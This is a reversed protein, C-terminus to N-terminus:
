ASRGQKRRRQVLEQAACRWEPFRFEFGSMLLLGPVVRRSKLILETETRLFIAGVELMWQSAPLGVRAGWAKRLIRMFEENPLPNPSAVNVTREFEEREVLHDLARVFDDEHIWSVFQKGSGPKGGLGFRVLRLLLDFTGGREASMVMASRLAIRRTRPTNAAFFAREWRTAVEISFHWSDPVNAEHGGLEGTMEDMAQDFSHRYITATSANIWLHPPRHLKSIAEGLLETTRIRSELIERRNRANYRCNVSRGALNIVVDADELETTWDDLDSGNWSIVPWPAVAGSRSLVTVQNGKAHLHRAVIRGLHGAGGPIVV